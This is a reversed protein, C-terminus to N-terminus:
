PANAPFYLPDGFKEVGFRAILQQGEASTLFDAFAKAGAANVKPQRAANAEFVNHQTEFVKFGELIVALSLNRRMSLFTERDTVTYGKRESALRLVPAMGQRAELYWPGEPTIGARQWVGMEIQHTPSGDGRSVFLAQAAAIAKFAVAPGERKTKAPDDAPGVLMYRSSMVPRPRLGFGGNVVQELEAAANVLFLDAEGREALGLAEGPAYTRPQVTLGARKQFASVLVDLVGSELVDAATALVVPREAAGAASTVGLLLVALGAALTSCWPRSSRYRMTWESKKM